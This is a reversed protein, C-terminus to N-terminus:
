TAPGSREWGKKINEAVLTDAVLTAHAESVATRLTRKLPTKRDPSYDTFHVVWAPWGPDTTEKNTRWVLLKRVATRGKAAKTWVERRVLGSASRAPPEAPADLAELACRETLQTARVDIANVTKDRRVRALVPTILSVGPMAAAPTWAGGEFRLALRSVPTGDSDDARVDTSAVEIVVELRDWRVLM